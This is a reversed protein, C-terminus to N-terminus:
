SKGVPHSKTANERWKARIEDTSLHLRERLDSDLFAEILSIRREMEALRDANDPTTM